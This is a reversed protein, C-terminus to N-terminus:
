KQGLVFVLEYGKAMFNLGFILGAAGGVDAMFTATPYTPTEMDGM